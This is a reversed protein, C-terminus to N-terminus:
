DEEGDEVEVEEGFEGERSERIGDELLRNEILPGFDEIEVDEKGGDDAEEEGDEVDELADEFAVFVPNLSSHWM